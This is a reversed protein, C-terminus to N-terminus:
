AAGGKAKAIAARAADAMEREATLIGGGPRTMDFHRLLAECAALLDPAAAILAANAMAESDSPCNDPRAGRTTHYLGCIPTARGDDGLRVVELDGVIGHAM